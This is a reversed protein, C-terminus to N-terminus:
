QTLNRASPSRAAALRAPLAEFAATHSTAGGLSLYGAFRGGEDILLGDFIGESDRYVIVEPRMGEHTLEALVAPVVAEAANTVSCMGSADLDHILPVGDIVGAFQFLAGGAELTQM